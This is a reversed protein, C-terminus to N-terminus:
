WWRRPCPTATRTRTTTSCCSQRPLSRRCPPERPPDCPPDCPRDGAAALRAQEEALDARAADLVADRAERQLRNKAADVQLRDLGAEALGMEELFMAREDEDLQSVDVEPGLILGPQLNTLEGTLSDIMVMAATEVVGIGNLRFAQFILNLAEHLHGSSALSTGRIRVCM